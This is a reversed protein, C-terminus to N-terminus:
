DVRRRSYVHYDRRLRNILIVGGCLIVIGMDRYPQLFILNLVENLESYGFSWHVEFPWFFSVPAISLFADALVHSIVLLFCSIFRVKPILSWSRWANSALFGMTLAFVLSHTPGRHFSSGNIQFILGLVVDIDPLNSLIVIFFLSKWPNISSKNKLSLDYTVLGIAAHGIPSPM